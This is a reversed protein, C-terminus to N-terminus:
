SGITTFSKALSALNNLSDMDFGQLLSKANEMVPTMGKMANALQLQQTMLNQTDNTLQKIGEGGLINNLDGYADEITSAYDLRSKKKNIMSEDIKPEAEAEDTKPEARNAPETETETETEMTTEHHPVLPLSNSVPKKEDKNKEDKNKEDKNELGEKIVNGVMLINTLILASGLVIIMNKNFNYVLYAVIAFFFTPTLKGLVMYGLINTVSLFLVFYLVYKNHIVKSTINSLKM